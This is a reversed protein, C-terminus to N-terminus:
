RPVSDGTSLTLPSLTGRTAIFVGVNWGVVKKKIYIYIYIYVYIYMCVYMCVDVCRHWGFVGAGAGAAVFPREFILSANITFMWFTERLALM